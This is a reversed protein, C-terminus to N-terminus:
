AARTACQVTPHIIMVQDLQTLAFLKQVTASLCALEMAGKKGILKFSAVVAGLGSSDIFDVDTLDLVVRGEYGDVARRIQDKFKIAAGADIRSAMVRLILCDGSMDSQLEM